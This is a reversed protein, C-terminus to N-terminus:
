YVFSLIYKFLFDVFVFIGAVVVLAIAIGITMKTTTDRSPWVVKVLESYVDKLYSSSSNNKLVVVFVLIGSLVGIGQSLISFSSIKAELDFWAGLQDVFRTVVFGSLVAAVIVLGNIWKSSDESKIISM